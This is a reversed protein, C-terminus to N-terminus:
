KSKRVHKPLKRGKTSADWEKLAKAGLIEPHSHMYGAQALSSFPNKPVKHGPTMGIEVKRGTTRSTVTDHEHMKDNPYADCICPKKGCDKCM